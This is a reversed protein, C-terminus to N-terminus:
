ICFVIPPILNIENSLVVIVHIYRSRGLLLILDTTKEILIVYQRWMCYGTLGLKQLLKEVWSASILQEAFLSDAAPLLLLSKPVLLKVELQCTRNWTETLLQLSIKISVNTPRRQVSRIFVVSLVRRNRSMCSTRAVSIM